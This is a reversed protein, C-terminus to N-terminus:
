QHGDPAAATTARAAAVAKKEWRLYRKKSAYDIRDEADAFGTAVQSGGVDYNGKVRVLHRLPYGDPDRNPARTDRHVEVVM